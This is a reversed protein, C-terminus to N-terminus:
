KRNDYNGSNIVIAMDCEIAPYDRVTISKATASEIEFGTGGALLYADKFKLNSPISEALRFTRGEVIDKAWSYRKVNEMATSINKAKYLTLPEAFVGTCTFIVKFMVFMDILQFYHRISIM